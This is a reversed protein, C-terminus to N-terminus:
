AHEGIWRDLRAATTKQALLREVEAPLRDDVADHIVRIAMFPAARRRCVEAAGLTEMDVAMAGHQKGLALKEEPTQVIRDLTLLTGVQVGPLAALWARDVPLEIALRTGTTDLLQDAVLIDHRKLRTDLAGAFGASVVWAPGHGDILAETAKAANERGPGSVVLALRRGGLHGQHVTLGSGRTTVRDALLDELGGSEIALAFVVGLFTPEAAEAPEGGSQGQQRAAEFVTERVKQQAANQLWARLLHRLVM